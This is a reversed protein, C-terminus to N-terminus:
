IFISYCRKGSGAPRASNGTDPHRPPFRHFNNGSDKKKPFPIKGFRSRAFHAYAIDHGAIFRNVLSQSYNEPRGIRIGSLINYFDITV